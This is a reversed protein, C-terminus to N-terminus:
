KSKNSLGQVTYCKQTSFRKRTPTLLVELAYDGRRACISNWSFQQIEILKEFKEKFSQKYERYM